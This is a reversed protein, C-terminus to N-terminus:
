WGVPTVKIELERNYVRLLDIVKDLRIRRGKHIFGRITNESMGARRAIEDLKRDDGDILAALHAAIEHQNM